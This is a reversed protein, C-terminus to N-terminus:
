IRSVLGDQRKVCLPKQGADDNIGTVAHRVDTGDVFPERQRMQRSSEVDGAAVDRPVEDLKEEKASVGEVLNWDKLVKLIRRQRRPL